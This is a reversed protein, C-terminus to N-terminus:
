EKTLELHNPQIEIAETLNGTGSASFAPFVYRTPFCDLYTYSRGADGRGNTETITVDRKWPKGQVTETIWGAMAQRGSTLPGRLTLTDVYKHGPTTTHSQDTGTSSDAIEINLAGGTCTEWASDPESGTAGGSMEVTFGPQPPGGQQRTRESGRGPKQGGGGGPPAIIGLEVRQMKAVITEVAVNSSPSYEGPDWRVPFADIVNWRRAESGDRGLAIVSINKRISDGKAAALWWDFLENGLTVRCRITISGYHADGPEFTRVDDGEPTVDVIGIVVDDITISEVNASATPAGEIDVKFKGAGNELVEYSAENVGANASHDVGIFLLAAALFVKPLPRRQRHPLPQLNNKM